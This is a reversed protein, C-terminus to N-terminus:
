GDVWSLVLRLEGSAVTVTAEFPTLDDLPHRAVFDPITRLCGQMLELEWGFPPRMSLGREKRFISPYAEPNVVEWGYEAIADLDGDPIGSEDDYTVTLAVTERANDEDSMRGKWLKKLVKLDDYLALGFTLGSQGMVVAFRPGSEVRDCEVRIASEYGLKRWPARRYFEAAAQYFGAVMEPTVGPMDLLSPPQDGVLATELEAFVFDLQDLAPVTEVEIGIANLHPTLSEWWEGALVQLETPRHAEGMIPTQMASALQDWLWDATPADEVVNQTLILDQSRSSVIVVWPHVLTGDIETRSRLQRVDAQWVDFEQPLRLLRKQVLPLPGKSKPQRSQPAKAKSGAAKLWGLAGPTSKWGGMAAGAYLIAENVDGLQYLGPQERPMPKKGLLYDPVFRNIRQAEKLQNQSSPADGDRRFALLAKTYAWAATAEDFADLLRVLEDFRDMNLLWGALIYRVGQNDNPNLALMEQLHAIAEDRHGMTWLVDALGLRARMYPRTEHFGWFQGAHAKFFDPGLSREGAEVGQRYFELAEKRTKACEGLLIYADTCDPSLALAKRALAARKRNDTVELAQFMLEEAQGQPTDPAHSGAMQGFFGRMAEELARHDPTEPLPEAQERTPLPKKPAKKGPKKKAM